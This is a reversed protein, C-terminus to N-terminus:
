FYYRAGLAGELGGTVDPIFYVAPAVEVFVEVPVDNHLYALQVPIRGGVRVDDDIGFGTAVTAGLGVGLPLRGNADAWDIVAVGALYDAGIRAYDFVFSYSIHSQLWSREGPRWALTVGTPEGLVLGAGFGRAPGETEIDIEIDDDQAHAPDVALLALSLLFM